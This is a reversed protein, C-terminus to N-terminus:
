SKRTRRCTASRPKRRQAEAGCASLALVLLTGLLGVVLLAARPKLNRVRTMGM